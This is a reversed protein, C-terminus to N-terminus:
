LRGPEETWPIEWALISHHTAMEKELVTLFTFYQGLFFFNKKVKQDAWVADPIKTGCDPISGTGEAISTCIRLWYVM